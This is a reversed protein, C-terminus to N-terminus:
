GADAVARARLSADVALAIPHADAIGQLLVVTDEEYVAMQMVRTRVDDMTGMYQSVLAESCGAERAVDLRTFRTFGRARAARLAAETISAARRARVEPGRYPKSM